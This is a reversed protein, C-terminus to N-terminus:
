VVKKRNKYRRNLSFRFDRRFKKQIRSSNYKLTEFIVNRAAMVKTGKVVYKVYPSQYRYHFVAQQKSSSPNLVKYKISDVVNGERAFVMWPKRSWEGGLVGPNGTRSRYKGKFPHGRNKLDKLTTVYGNKSANRKMEQYAMEAADHLADNAADGIIGKMQSLRHRLRKLGKTKTIVM